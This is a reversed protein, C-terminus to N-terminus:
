AYATSLIPQQSAGVYSIVEIKMQKTSMSISSVRTCKWSTVTVWSFWSSIVQIEFFFSVMSYATVFIFALLIPWIHQFNWHQIMTDFHHTGALIKWKKFSQNITVRGCRWDWEIAHSLHVNFLIKSEYTRLRREAWISSSSADGDPKIYNRNLLISIFHGTDWCLFTDQFLSSHPYLWFWLSCSLISFIEIGFRRKWAFSLNDFHHRGTLIACKKM